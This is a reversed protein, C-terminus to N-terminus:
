DASIYTKNHVADSLQDALKSFEYLVEVFLYTPTLRNKFPVNDLILKIQETCDDTKGKFYLILNKYKYSIRTSIDKLEKLNSVSGDYKDHGVLGVLKRANRNLKAIHVFLYQYFLDQDRKYDFEYRISLYLTELSAVSSINGWLQRRYSDDLENIKEQVSLFFHTCLAIIEGQTNFFIASNHKMDVAASSAKKYIVYEAILAILVGLFTCAIRKVLTDGIGIPDLTVIAILMPVVMTIIAALIAYNGTVFYMYFGIFYVLPLLYGWHYNGYMFINIYLFGLLAGSLTGIVRDMTKKVIAGQGQNAALFMVGTTMPIWYGHIIRFGLYIAVGVCVAITICLSEQIYSIQKETM